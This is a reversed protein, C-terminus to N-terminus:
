IALKQFDRHNSLYPIRSYSGPAPDLEQHYFLWFQRANFEKTVYLVTFVLRNHVMLLFFCTILLHNLHTSSSNKPFKPSYKPFVLRNHVMRLSFLYYTISSPSTSASRVLQLFRRPPNKNHSWDPVQAGFICRFDIINDM